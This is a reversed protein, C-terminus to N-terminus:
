TQPMHDLNMADDSEWKRKKNSVKKKDDSKSKLIPQTKQTEWDDPVEYNVEIREIVENEDYELDESEEEETWDSSADDEYM